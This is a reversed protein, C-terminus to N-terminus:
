SELKLIDGRTQTVDLHTYRQTTSLDRHGAFEQIRRMDVGKQSLRSCFTHRIAHLTDGKGMGVRERVQHWEKCVTDYGMDFYHVATMREKETYLRLLRDTMPISRGHENKTEERGLVFMQQDVLVNSTKLALAESIRMGTDFLTLMLLYFDPYNAERCAELIIRQEDETYWRFRTPPEGQM